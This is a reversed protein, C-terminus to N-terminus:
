KRLTLGILKALSKLAKRAIDEKDAGGFFEDAVADLDDGKVQYQVLAGLDRTLMPKQPPKVLGLALAWGRVDAM